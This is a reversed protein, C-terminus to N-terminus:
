VANEDMVNDVISDIINPIEDDLHISIDSDGDNDSDLNPYIKDITVADDIDNHLQMEIDNHTNEDHNHHPINVIHKKRKLKRRPTYNHTHNKNMEKGVPCCNPENIIITNGSGVDINKVIKNIPEDTGNKKEEEEDKDAEGDYECLNPCCQITLNIEPACMKALLGLIGVGMLSIGIVLPNTM